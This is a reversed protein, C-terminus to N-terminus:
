SGEFWPFGEPDAAMRAAVVADDHGRVQELFPFDEPGVELRAVPKVPVSSAAQAVHVWADGVAIPPQNEFTGAPLLYVSGSRWPRRELAPRSLSFFYSPASGRVHSGVRISANVSLAPHSDRDLVAYYMPWIGDTAAFVALRNSFELEDEPQRPEFEQIDPDGSGHLVVDSREAAHCLFQWKPAALSYDIPRGGGGALVEDLLRDFLDTTAADPRAAPRSLWYDPLQM